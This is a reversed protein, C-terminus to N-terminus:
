QAESAHCTVDHSFTAHVDAKVHVRTCVSQHIAIPLLQNPFHLLEKMGSVVWVVVAHDDLWDSFPAKITSLAEYAKKPQMHSLTDLTDDLALPQADVRTSVPLCPM